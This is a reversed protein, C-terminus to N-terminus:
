ISQSVQKRLVVHCGKILLDEVRMERYPYSFYRKSIPLSDWRELKIREVKFGIKRFIDEMEHMRIRNTYFGSNAMFDSEWVKESFRLNNLSSGLHDKYDIQHSCVGDHKMVRYTERMLDEFESQRIHELVAQSWLFDVSNDSIDLISSLGNTKYVANCKNLVEELSEVDSLDAVKLGKEELYTNMEKYPVIEKQAYDGVDVMYTCKAGYAYAVLASFLSDGSGLELAVFSKGSKIQILQQYHQFFVDHAYGIQGMHGHKFIGIRRWYNYDVPLRSLVIKALIKVQWPINGKISMKPFGIVEQKRGALVSVNIHGM